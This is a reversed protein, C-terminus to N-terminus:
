SQQAERQEEVRSKERQRARFRRVRMLNACMDDCWRRSQYPSEDYYFWRCDPNECQKIHTLEQRVLLTAFSAAVERLVWAWDNHLPVQQLQYCAGTRALHLRSPAPHLYANLAAQDQESFTHTSMAMQMLGRLTQLAALTHADPAGAMPLEWRAALQEVWGPRLLRDEDEGTGRRDHWDSNVVELCLAEMRLLGREIAKIM